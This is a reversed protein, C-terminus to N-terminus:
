EIPQSLIINILMTLDLISHDGSYNLDAQIDNFVEPQEGLLKNILITLDLINVKGDNNVDGTAELRYLRFRAASMWLNTSNSAEVGITANGTAPQVFTLFVDNWGRGFLGGTNGIAPITQTIRTGQANEAFLQYHSIGTQARATTTLVYYGQPLNALQQSLTFSTVSNVDIYSYNSNGEADTYPENNLTWCNSSSTWGDTSTGQANTIYSTFDEGNYRVAAANSEVYVRLSTNLAEAKLM